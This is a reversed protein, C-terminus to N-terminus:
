QLHRAGFGLLTLGSLANPEVKAVRHALVRQPYRRHANQYGHHQIFADVERYIQVFVVAPLNL